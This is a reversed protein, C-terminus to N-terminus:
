RGFTGTLITKAVKHNMMASELSKTGDAASLKLPADLAWLTFIYRHTGSPPCPSVYGTKGSSNVGEVAGKPLVTGTIENIIPINWALWHHFTGFPADPDDMTIALVKAESPIDSIELTPRLGRGRCSYDVPIAQNDSFVPSTLKMNVERRETNGPCVATPKPSSPHGHVVWQGNRCIWDDEGSLFRIFFVVVVIGVFGVLLVRFLRM